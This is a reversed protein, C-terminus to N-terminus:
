DQLSSLADKDVLSIDFFKSQWVGDESERMVIISVTDGVEKDKVSNVLDTATTVSEEDVGVIVDGAQLGKKAADSDEAVELILAGKSEGSISDIADQCTIGLYGHSTNEETTDDDSNFV